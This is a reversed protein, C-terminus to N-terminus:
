KKVFEFLDVDEYIFNLPNLPIDNHRVEYHLHPGTSLGSNGSLAILDGRKVKQGKRVKTQKLHAYVTKYGFGHDIELTLGYSGRRGAFTVIGDGPAYVKTGVDTIIDVGNHMRRVKLIPHLRLGFDDTITGECPKIAPMSAFLVENEKLKRVIENYNKRESVVDNEVKNILNDINKVFNSITVPNNTTLPTFVAGGTGFQSSDVDLNATLRLSYSLDKLEKVRKDLEVYKETMTELRSRLLANDKKLKRIESDPNIYENVVLYTGFIFFSIVVSVFTVLFLFKKYFNEVEVFKLKSKSFYYFKKM